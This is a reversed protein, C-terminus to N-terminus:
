QGYIIHMSPLPWFIHHIHHSPLSPDPCFYTHMYLIIGKWLNYTRINKCYRQSINYLVFTIILAFLSSNCKQHYLGYYLRTHRFLVFCYTWKNELVLVARSSTCRITFDIKAIVIYNFLVSTVGFISWFSVGFIILLVFRTM